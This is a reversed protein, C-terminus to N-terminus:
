KYTRIYGDKVVIVETSSADKGTIKNMDVFTKM